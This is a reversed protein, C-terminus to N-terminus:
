PSESTCLSKKRLDKSDCQMNFFLKAIITQLESVKSKIYDGQYMCTQACVHGDPVYRMDVTLKDKIQPSSINIIFLSDRRGITLGGGQLRIVLLHCIGFISSMDQHDLFNHKVVLM